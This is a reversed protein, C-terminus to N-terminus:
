RENAKQRDFKFDKPLKGRLKRLERLQQRWDATKGIALSRSGKITIEVNDGEKLRLAEVVSAPIRIALSNGWKSVQMARGVAPLGASICNAFQIDLAPTITDRV